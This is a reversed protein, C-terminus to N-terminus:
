IKVKSSWEPEWRADMMVADGPEAWYKDKKNECSEAWVIWLTNEELYQLM